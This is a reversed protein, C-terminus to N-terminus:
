NTVVIGLRRMAEQEFQATTRLPHSLATEVWRKADVRRHHYSIGACQVIATWGDEYTYREVYARPRLVLYFRERQPFYPAATLDRQRWWRRASVIAASGLHCGVRDATATAAARIHSGLRGLGGQQVQLGRQHRRWRM